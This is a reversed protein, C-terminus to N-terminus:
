IHKALFEYHKFLKIRLPQMKIKAISTKVIRSVRLM